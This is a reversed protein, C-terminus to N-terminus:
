TTWRMGEFSTALHSTHPCAAPPIPPKAAPSKTLADVRHWLAQRRELHEQTQPGAATGPDYARLEAQVAELSMTEVDTARIDDNSM